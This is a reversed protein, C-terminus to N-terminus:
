YGVGAVKYGWAHRLIHAHTKIELNAEIGGAV